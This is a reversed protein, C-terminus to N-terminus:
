LGPRRPAPHAVPGPRRRVRRLWRYRSSYSNPRRCKVDEVGEGVESVVGAVESGPTFPLEQPVLYQNRRRMTDAYNVGASRVEILVEGEGPAPRGVDAYGLVEPEGFEEAVLIAKMQAM